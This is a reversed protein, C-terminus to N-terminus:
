RLVVPTLYIATKLKFIDMNFFKHFGHILFAPTFIMFTNAAYISFLDPIRNRTGILITGSLLCLIALMWQFAGPYRKIYAFM